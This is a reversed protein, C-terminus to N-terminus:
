GLELRKVQLHGCLAPLWKALGRKPAPHIWAVSNQTRVIRGVAQRLRHLTQAPKEASAPSALGDSAIVLL